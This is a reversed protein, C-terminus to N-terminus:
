IQNKWANRLAAALVTTDPEVKKSDPVVQIAAHSRPSDPSPGAGAQPSGTQTQPVALSEKKITEDAEKAFEALQQEISKPRPYCWECQIPHRTKHWLEHQRLSPPRIKKMAHISGNSFRYVTQRHGRGRGETLLVADDPVEEFQEGCIRCKYKM